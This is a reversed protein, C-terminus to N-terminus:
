SSRWWDLAVQETAKIFPDKGDRYAEIDYPHQMALERKLQSYKEAVVPHSRLYDRFALHRDVEGSDAAFAHVQYERIGAANDKRFYRRGPIGFEGKAEYGHAELSEARRDVAVLSTVEVLIDIIPKAFISPIATSGIHHIGVAASGLVESVLTAESEFKRSWMPDHAVVVIDMSRM